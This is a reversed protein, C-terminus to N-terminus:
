KMSFSTPAFICFWGVVGIQKFLGAYGRRKDRSETKNVEKKHL